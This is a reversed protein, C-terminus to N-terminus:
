IRPKAKQPLDGFHAQTFLNIAGRHTVCVCVCVCLVCVSLSVVGERQDVGPAKLLQPLVLLTLGSRQKLQKLLHFQSFHYTEAEM